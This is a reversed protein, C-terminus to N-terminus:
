EIERELIETVVQSLDIVRIYRGIGKGDGFSIFANVDDKFSDQIIQIIEIHEPETATQTVSEKVGSKFLLDYRMKIKM